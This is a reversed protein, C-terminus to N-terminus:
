PKRRKQDERCHDACCYGGNHRTSNTCGYLACKVFPNQPKRAVTLGRLAASHVIGMLASGVSLAESGCLTRYNLESPLVNGVLVTKPEQKSAELVDELGTPVTPTETSM